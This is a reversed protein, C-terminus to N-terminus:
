RSLHQGISGRRGKRQPSLLVSGNDSVSANHAANMSRSMAGVSMNASMNANSPSLPHNGANSDRYSDKQIDGITEHFYGQRRIAECDNYDMPYWQATLGKSARTFTGRVPLKEFGDRIRNVTEEYLPARDRNLVYM